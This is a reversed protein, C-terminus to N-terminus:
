ESLAPADTFHVFDLKSTKDIRFGPRAAGGTKLGLFSGSPPTPAHDDRCATCNHGQHTADHMM